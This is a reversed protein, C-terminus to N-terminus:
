DELGFIDLWQETEGATLGERKGEPEKRAPRKRSLEKRVQGWFLDARLATANREAAARRLRRDSSVVTLRRPATNALIKEEIVTDADSSFGSFVVSVYGVGDFVSKDLPGAGDFVIEGEDGIRDFYRDLTECLQAEGTIELDGHSEHIAWLLNTGDIIVM